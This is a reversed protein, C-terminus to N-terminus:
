RGSRVMARVKAANEEAAQKSRAKGGEKLEKEREEPSKGYKPPNPMIGMKGGGVERGGSAGRDQLKTGKEKQDAGPSDRGENSLPKRDQDHGDPHEKEKDRPHDKHEHDPRDTPRQGEIPRDGSV